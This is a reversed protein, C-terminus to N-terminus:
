HQRRKRIFGSVAKWILSVAKFGSEVQGLTSKFAYYESVAESEMAEIESEKGALEDELDKRTRIGEDGSLTRIFFNRFLSRRFIWLVILVAVFFGLVVLTGWPTGLLSNLWQTLVCAALALVIVLVGVLFIATLFLSLAGSVAKVGHLRASSIRLDIYEKTKM